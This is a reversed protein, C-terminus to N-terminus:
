AQFRPQLLVLPPEDSIQMETGLEEDESCIGSFLTDTM